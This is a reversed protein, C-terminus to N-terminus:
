IRSKMGKFLEDAATDAPIIGSAKLLEYERRLERTAVVAGQTAATTNKGTLAAKNVAEIAQRARQLQDIFPQTLRAQDGGLEKQIIIQMEKAALSTARTSKIAEESISILQNQM